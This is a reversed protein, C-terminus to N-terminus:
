EFHEHWAALLQTRNQEIIQHLRTVENRRFGKRYELAVPDLWFKAYREAQEVHIHPPERSENSYFFFRNGGVQLVKPM